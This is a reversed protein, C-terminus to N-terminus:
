SRRENKLRRRYEIGAVSNVITELEDSNLPPDNRENWMYILEAVLMPDVYRRFLHGALSTAANNRGEHEKFGKMLRIWHSTDRRSPVEDDNKKLVMDLLWQPAEAITSESPHSSLEWNYQNGSEHVSPEVVIYGGESKIDLGPLLNVGNEIGEHYKFLYHVGEGSGTFQQVTEPLNGYQDTLHELTEFGNSIVEGTKDRKVDVDLVFFGNKKGAPVGINAQPTDQWWSIIQNVDTTANYFGNRTIPSKKRPVLPFVNWKLSKAYAM